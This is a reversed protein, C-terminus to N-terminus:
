QARQEAMDGGAPALNAHLSTVHGARLGLTHRPGTDGIDGLSAADKGIERHALVEDHGRAGTHAALARPRELAHKRAKRAEARPEPMAAVLERAALLLHQRDAPRQE